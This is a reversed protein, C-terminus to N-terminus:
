NKKRLQRETSTGGGGWNKDGARSLATIYLRKIIDSTSAFTKTFCRTVIKRGSLPNSGRHISSQSHLPNKKEPKERRSGGGLFSNKLDPLEVPATQVMSTIYLIYLMIPSDASIM